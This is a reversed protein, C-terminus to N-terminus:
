KKGRFYASVLKGGPPVDIVHREMPSFTIARGQKFKLDVDITDVILCPGEGNDPIWFINIQCLREVSGSKIRVVDISSTNNDAVVLATRIFKGDDHTCMAACAGRSGEAKTPM